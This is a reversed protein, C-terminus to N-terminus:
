SLSLFTIDQARRESTKVLRTKKKKKKKKSGRRERGVSESEFGRKRRAKWQFFASPNERGRNGRETERKRQSTSLSFPTTQVRRSRNCSSVSPSLPHLSLSLSLCLVLVACLKKRFTASTSSSSRQRPLRQRRRSTGRARAPSPARQSSLLAGPRTSRHSCCRFRLVPPRSATPSHAFSIGGNERERCGGVRRRRRM